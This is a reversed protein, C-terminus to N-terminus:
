TDRDVTSTSDKMWMKVLFWNCRHLLWWQNCNQRFSIMGTATVTLLLTRTYTASLAAITTGADRKTSEVETQGIIEIFGIEENM